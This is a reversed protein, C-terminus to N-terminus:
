RVIQQPQPYGLQKETEWNLKSSVREHCPVYEELKEVLEIATPVSLIIQRVNPSIFGEEVVKDIFSLLSKYYGDVGAIRAEMKKRREYPPPEFIFSGLLPRYMTFWEAKFLPTNKHQQNPSFILVYSEQEEDEYYEVIESSDLSMDDDSCLIPFHKSHSGFLVVELNVGDVICESENM